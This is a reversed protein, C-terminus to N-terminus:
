LYKKIMENKRIVISLIWSGLVSVVLTIIFKLQVPVNQELLLFQCWTVFTFHVLYIMYANNSFSNWLPKASHTLMKFSTIFAICSLTCSSVFFLYYVMESYITNVKYQICLQPLQITVITLLAFAILSLIDWLWWKQVIKYKASFITNNFDSNGIMVGFIFYSFYLLIRNLQFDFPGIGTWTGRGVIYSLPAYTLWTFSFWIIFLKGPKDKLLSLLEGSRKYWKGALPFSVGFIFNFLFLVWIFWPPGVPWKQITFFNVVYRTISTDGQTLYYSPFYALLMFATGGLLFPIFLRNYRDKIFTGVGKKGISKTLFLGSILFMLSMFFIDNFYVLADFGIWRQTDVIAHTSRIYVKEDFSAWTTYALAAHHAVVLFTIFSRLYNIWVTENTTNNERM